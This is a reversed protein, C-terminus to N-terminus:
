LVDEGHDPRNRRRDNGGRSKRREAGRLEDASLSGDNDVDLQLFAADQFEAISVFGDTDTDASAFEEAILALRREEMVARRTGRDSEVSALDTNGAAGPRPAPRSDRFEEQSLEGNGDKDLADFLFASRVEFEQYSVVGDSNSDLDGVRGPGRKDQALAGTSVLLAGLTTVTMLKKM